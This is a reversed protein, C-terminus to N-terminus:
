LSAPLSREGIRLLEGPEEVQEQRGGLTRPSPLEARGVCVASPTVSGAGGRRATDEPAGAGTGHEGVVRGHGVVEDAGGEEM